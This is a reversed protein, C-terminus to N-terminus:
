NNKRAVADTHGAGDPRGDPRGDTVRRYWTLVTFIYSCATEVTAYGLSDLKELGFKM